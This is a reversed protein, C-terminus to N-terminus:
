SVTNIETSLTEDVEGTDGCRDTQTHDRSIPQSSQHRDGAHHSDPHSHCQTGDRIAREGSHLEGATNIVSSVHAFLCVVDGDVVTQFSLLTIFYYLITM